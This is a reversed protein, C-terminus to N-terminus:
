EKESLRKSVGIAYILSRAELMRDRSPEFGESLVTPDYNIADCKGDPENMAFKVVFKAATIQTHDGTWLVAPNDVLDEPNAITIVMNWAVEGAKLNAQMNELFFDQRPELRIEQEGAPVFSFRIATKRGTRDVLYFSNISNYTAGEYPRLTQDLAAHYTKHAKLEPSKAAFAAVAEKSTAKARMLETFAEPTSVPFFHETNMNIIHIDGDPTTIEMALGYHGFKNDAAKNNGGKHSVRAIVSSTSNFLPSKSYNRIATDLPEFEGEICYGKTHNRRKGQTVGFVDEFAAIANEANASADQAFSPMPTLAIYIALLSSAKWM